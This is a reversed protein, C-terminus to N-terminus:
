GDKSMGDDSIFVRITRWLSFKRGSVGFVLQEGSCSM